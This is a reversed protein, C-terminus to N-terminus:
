MEADLLGADPRWSQAGETGYTNVPESQPFLSELLMRNVRASEMLLMATEVHRRRLQEALLVIQERRYNVGLRHEDDLQEILKSLKM